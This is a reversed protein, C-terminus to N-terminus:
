AHLQATPSDFAVEAICMCYNQEFSGRRSANASEAAQMGREKPAAAGGAAGGACCHYSALALLARCVHM